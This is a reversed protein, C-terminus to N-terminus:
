DVLSCRFAHSGKRKCFFLDLVYRAAAQSSAAIRFKPSEGIVRGDVRKWESIHAVPDVLGGLRTARIPFLPICIPNPPFVLLFSVV